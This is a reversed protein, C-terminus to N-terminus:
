MLTGIAGGTVRYGDAGAVEFLATRMFPRSKTGPHRVMRRFLVQGSAVQFRLYGGPRRARIIHPRTGDHVFHAYKVRTEVTGVVYTPRVKMTMRQSARLNGTRVPTLVRSRNLTRRTTDAVHPSTVGMAVSRVTAANLDLKIRKIAGAM